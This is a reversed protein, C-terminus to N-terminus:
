GHWSCRHLLGWSCRDLIGGHRILAVTGALLPVVAGPFHLEFPTLPVAVRVLVKSRFNSIIIITHLEPHPQLTFPFHGPSAPPSSRRATGNM